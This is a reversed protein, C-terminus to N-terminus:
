GYVVAPRVVIKNINVKVRKAVRRDCIESVLRWGKKLTIQHKTHNVVLYKFEDMKVVEIGQLM